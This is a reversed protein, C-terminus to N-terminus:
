LVVCGVPGNKWVSDNYGDKIAKARYYYTGTTRNTLNVTRGTGSYVQAPSGFLPDDKSEEVVYTVGPTSSIGVVVGIIRSPNPAAPVYLSAPTGASLNVVSPSAGATWASDTYGSAQAKVRYYYTGNTRTVSVSRNPGSYVQLLNVSFDNATSEEVVYTPSPTSTSGWGLNIVGSATPSPVYMYAPAGATIAVLCGNPGAIWASDNSGAKIAKVQYYYTTGNTKGTLTVNRSTGSYVQALNASFDAATSEEVVYTVGPTSSIGWGLNIVGNTTTSPVYMYAPTGATITVLCGNPGATWASDNSGAKIAKVQYYYTTGNTRGTLTVNRDAGSYVQTLNASFDAATSEEVVYTVGPTSSIGWGLNIVGSATAPPVYMYAPAGTIDPPLTTVSFTGSVGGITLVTDTKTEYNPSSTQRVRLANGNVVTGSMSSWIESGNIEYEGGSITVPAATNIGTVTISNSTVLTNLTAKAQGTFVFSDPTTDALFTFNATVEKVINM